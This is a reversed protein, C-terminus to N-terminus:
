REGGDGPQRYGAGATEAGPELAVWDGVLPPGGKATRRATTHGAASDERQVKFLGRQGQTVRGARYGAAHYEEFARQFHGDWGYLELTLAKDELDGCAHPHPNRQAAGSTPCVV